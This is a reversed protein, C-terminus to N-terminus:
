ELARHHRSGGAGYRRRWFGNSLIAVDGQGPEEDTRDFLRGLAPRSGLVLFLDASVFGTSLEEPDGGGTLNLADSDYLAVRDFVRNGAQIVGFDAPPVHFHWNPRHTRSLWVNVIRSSDAFPLPRLLIVNVASFIAINAGIGLALTLVAM